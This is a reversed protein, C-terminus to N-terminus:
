SKMIAEAYNAWSMKEKAKAVNERPIPHEIFFNMKNMMDEINDPEVLYGNFGDKITEPFHGVNTALLPMDFNYSLSEIGSPTAYLYFLLVCDSIQFYKPVEENPIFENVVLTKDQIPPVAADAYRFGFASFLAITALYKM